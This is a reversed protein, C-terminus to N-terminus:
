DHIAIVNISGNKDFSSTNSIFVQIGSATKRLTSVLQLPTGLNPNLDEITAAVTYNTDAFPSPWNLQFLADKGASLSVPVRMHKFGGGNGNMGKAVTVVGSTVSVNGSNDITMVENNNNRFHISAAGHSNLFTDGNPGGLLAYNQCGTLGGSALLGLGAYNAGCGPDGAIVHAGNGAITVPGDFRGALGGGSNVGYVGIGSSSSSSGQVGSGSPLASGGQVGIFGNGSVGTGNSNVSIGSVGVSNGPSALGQGALGLVGVGNSNSGSFGEVGRNNGSANTARGVIAVAYGTDNNSVDLRGSPSATGISVNGSKQFLLSNGLTSSTAWIPVFNATGTGGVSATPTAAADATRAPETATGRNPTASLVFASLPLGGLTEADAAKLAYPVSLLVVRPQEPQGAAQVGLWRAEGSNFLEKPLGETTSAGLLVSYRGGEDLVVNHTEMWIPAGGEQEKYLAFTVGEVPKGISEKLTGSFQVLRPVAARAPLEQSQGWPALLGAAVVVSLCLTVTRV